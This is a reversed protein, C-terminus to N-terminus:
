LEGEKRFCLSSVGKFVSLLLQVEALMRYSCVEVNVGHRSQVNGVFIGVSHVGAAVGVAVHGLTDVHGVRILGHTSLAYAFVLNVAVAATGNAGFTVTAFQVLVITVALLVQAQAVVTLDVLVLVVAVIVIVVDALVLVTLVLLTRYHRFQLKSAYQLLQCLFFFM